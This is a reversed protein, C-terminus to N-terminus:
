RTRERLFIDKRDTLHLVIQFEMSILFYFKYRM